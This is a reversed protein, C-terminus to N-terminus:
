VDINGAGKAHIEIFRKRPKINAGMLHDFIRDAEEADDVNVQLLVRNEPDMTTEWLQDPNMEGLGKYRQLSSGEGMKKILADKEKDTFAYEMKKGKKVSYLPPQAVYVYGADILPRFYRFLLTLILTKIHAGDVDADAMIVVKKYRLNEIDFEEGISTGLAIVISKVEESKLIKDLRAKETNLVKGRLPLIAQFRRNRGQKASGGASPGEVIFLEREEPDRSSCDALKGPLALFRSINKKFVTDRAKTAALRAKQAMFTGELIKRADSPNQELFDAFAETVVSRVVGGVETNGLKRKTQGEFQPEPVKVSVVATIGQRTDRGSLRDSKKKIVGKGEGYDNLVKTIASRLGSLHHGGEATNVNNAFSEELGEYEKTYRLSAEVIIGDRKEKVYFVNEHRVERGETLYRVYSIIGGEFYFTYSTGERLEKERSDIAVFEVAPTLFAQQRMEKVLWKWRWEAEEFIEDDPRFIITTGKGTKKTKTMKGKPKGRSYEQVHLYGDRTIEARFEESLASVVALGVGHLGGSSEYADSGFKAGSHLSTLITELASKGTESHKDVPIGEGNDSIRVSKNPLLEVEIRSCRGMIAEDVSNAIVEKALHHFGQPGTSGIYMGPRKRVPELGKLVKVDKATYTSKKKAM